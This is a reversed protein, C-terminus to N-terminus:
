GISIVRRKNCNNNINEKLQQQQQHQETGKCIPEDLKGKMSSFSQDKIISNNDNFSSKTASLSFNFASGMSSFESCIILTM